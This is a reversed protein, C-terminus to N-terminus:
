LVSTKNVGLTSSLPQLAKNQLGEYGVEEKNHSFINEVHFYASLFLNSKWFDGSVVSRSDPGCVLIFDNLCSPFLILLFCSESPLLVESLFLPFVSLFTVFCYDLKKCLLGKLSCVHRAKQFHNLCLKKPIVKWIM